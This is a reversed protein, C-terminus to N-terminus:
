LPRSEGGFFNSGMLMDVDGYPRNFTSSPAGQFMQKIESLNVYAIGTIDMVGFACVTHHGGDTGILDFEFISGRWEIQNGGMTKVIFM